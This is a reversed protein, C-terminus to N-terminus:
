SWKGALDNCQEALRQRVLSTTQGAKLQGHHAADTIAYTYIRPRAESKPTLNEEIHKTM